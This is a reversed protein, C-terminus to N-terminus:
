CVISETREKGVSEEIDSDFSLEGKHRKEISYDKPSYQACGNSKCHLRKTEENHTPSPVCNSHPPLAREHTNRKFSLKM